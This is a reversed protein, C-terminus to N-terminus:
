RTLSVRGSSFREHHAGSRAKRRRAANRAVIASSAATTSDNATAGACAMFISRTILGPPM